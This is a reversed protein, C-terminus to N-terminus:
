TGVEVIHTSDTSYFIRPVLQNAGVVLDIAVGDDLTISKSLLYTIFDVINYVRAAKTLPNPM